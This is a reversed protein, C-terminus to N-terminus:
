LSFRGCHLSFSIRQPLTSFDTHGSFSSRSHSDRGNPSLETPALTESLHERFFPFFHLLIRPFDLRDFGKLECMPRFILHREVVLVPETTQLTFPSLTESALVVTLPSLVEPCM